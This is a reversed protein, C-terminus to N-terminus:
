GPDVDIVDSDQSEIEHTALRELAAAIADRPSIMTVVGSVEAKVPTDLGWLRATREEVALLARIASPDGAAVAPMLASRAIDLRASMMGRLDSATEARKERIEALEATVWKHAASSSVGLRSAIEEYTLGQLRLKLAEAKTLESAAKRAIAKKRGEPTSPKGPSREKYTKSKRETM